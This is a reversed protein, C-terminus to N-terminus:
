PCVSRDDAERLQCADRRLAEAGWGVRQKEGVEPVLEILERQEAFRRVRQGVLEADGATQAKVM